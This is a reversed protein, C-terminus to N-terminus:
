RIPYNSVGQEDAGLVRPEPPTERIQREDSARDTSEHRAFTELVSEGSRRFQLAQSDARDERPEALVDRIDGGGLLCGAVVRRNSGFHASSREVAVDRDLQRLKADIDIFSTTARVQEREGFFRLPAVDREPDVHLLAGVDVSVSSMRRASRSKGCTPTQRCAYQISRGVIECRQNRETAAHTEDFARITFGRVDRIRPLAVDIRVVEPKGCLHERRSRRTKSRDEARMVPSHDIADPLM